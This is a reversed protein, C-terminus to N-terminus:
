DKDTPTFGEKFSKFSVFDRYSPFLGLLGCTLYIRLLDPIKRIFFDLVIFILLIFFPILPALPICLIILMQLRSVNNFEVEEVEFGVKDPGIFFRFRNKYLSIQIFALHMLEHVILFPFLMMSRPNNWAFKLLLSIVNKM